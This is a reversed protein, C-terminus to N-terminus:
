AATCDFVLQRGHDTMYSAIWHTHGYAWRPNSGAATWPGTFQVRVLSMGGDDEFPPNPCPNIVRWSARFYQLGAKMMTPSTYGKIEFDPIAPRVEDIRKHLAFALAAPGCNAGWTRSAAQFEAETFPYLAAMSRM